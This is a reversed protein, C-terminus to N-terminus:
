GQRARPVKPTHSVVSGGGVIVRPPEDLGALSVGAPASSTASAAWSRARTAAVSVPSDSIAPPPTLCTTLTTSAPKRWSVRARVSRHGGRTGATTSGCGAMARSRARHLLEDSGPERLSVPSTTASGSKATQDSSPMSSALRMSATPAGRGPTSLTSWRRIIAAEVCTRLARRGASQQRCSVGPADCGSESRDIM